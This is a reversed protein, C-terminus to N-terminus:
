YYYLLLLSDFILSTTQRTFSMPLSYTYLKTELGEKVTTVRRSANVITRVNTCSSHNSVLTMKM